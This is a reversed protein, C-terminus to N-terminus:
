REVSVYQPQILELLMYRGIGLGLVVPDNVLNSPEIILWDRGRAYNRFLGDRIQLYMAWRVDTRGSGIRFSVVRSGPNCSPVVLTMVSM